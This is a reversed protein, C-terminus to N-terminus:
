YPRTPESIHILSLSITTPNLEVNSIIPPSPPMEISRGQKNRVPDIIQKQYNLLDQHMQMLGFIALNGAKINRETQALEEKKNNLRFAYWAGSFTALLTVLAVLYDGVSGVDIAGDILAGFLTGLFFLGVGIFLETDGKM